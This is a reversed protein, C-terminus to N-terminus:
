GPSTNWGMQGEEAGLQQLTIDVQGRLPTYGWIQVKLFNDELKHNGESSSSALVNDKRSWAISLKPLFIEFSFIECCEFIM